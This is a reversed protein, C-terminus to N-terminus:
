GCDAAVNFPPEQRLPVLRGGRRTVEGCRRRQQRVYTATPVSRPANTALQAADKQVSRGRGLEPCVGGDIAHHVLMCARVVHAKREHGRFNQLLADSASSDPLTPGTHDHQWPPGGSSPIMASRLSQKAASGKPDLTM